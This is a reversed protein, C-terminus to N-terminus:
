QPSKSIVIFALLKDQVSAKLPLLTFNFKPVLTVSIPSKKQPVPNTSNVIGSFILFIPLKLSHTSM